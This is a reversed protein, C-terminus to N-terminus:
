KNWDCIFYAYYKNCCRGPWIPLLIELRYCHDPERQKSFDAKKKRHPTAVGLGMTQPFQTPIRRTDKWLPTFARGCYLNHLKLILFYCQPTVSVFLSNAQGSFQFWHTQSNKRWLQLTVITKAKLHDRATRRCWAAALRWLAHQIVSRSEKEGCVIYM